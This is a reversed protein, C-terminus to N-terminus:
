VMAPYFQRSPTYNRINTYRIIVNFDTPVRKNKIKSNNKQEDHNM